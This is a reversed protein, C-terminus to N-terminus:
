EESIDSVEHIERNDNFHFCINHPELRCIMSSKTKQNEEGKQDDSKDKYSTFQLYFPKM